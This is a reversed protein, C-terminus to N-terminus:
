GRNRQYKQFYSGQHSRCCFFNTQGKKVHRTQRQFEEECWDCILTTMAKPVLSGHHSAHERNSLVELNSIRNDLKDGNIHHVVEDSSLLRGLRREVKIRHEYVYRGGIYTKGGYGKPARVM